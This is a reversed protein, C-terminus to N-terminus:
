AVARGCTFVCLSPPFRVHKDDVYIDVDFGLEDLGEYPGCDFVGKVAHLLWTDGAKVDDLLQIIGGAEHQDFNVTPLGISVPAFCGCM